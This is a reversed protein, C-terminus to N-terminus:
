LLAWNASHSMSALASSGMDGQMQLNRWLRLSNKWLSHFGWTTPIQM